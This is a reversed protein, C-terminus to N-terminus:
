RTVARAATSTTARQRRGLADRAALRAHPAHGGQLQRSTRRPRAPAPSPRRMSRRAGRASPTWGPQSRHDEVATGTRSWRRLDSSVNWATAVNLVGAATVYASGPASTRLKTQLAQLHEWPFAQMLTAASKGQFWGTPGAYPNTGTPTPDEGYFTVSGAKDRLVIGYRQAAEAVMRVVPAMQITDLDLSPDLRFRTGEPIANPRRPHRRTRQAPWSFVDRARDGPDGARARPRHARGRARRAPDTRRAAAPEHRRDGTRRAGHLLRPQQLREDDERGLGRALRRGGEVARWFEWM